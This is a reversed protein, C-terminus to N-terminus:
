TAVDAETIRDARCDTIQPPHNCHKPETMNHSTYFAPIPPCLHLRPRLVRTLWSAAVRVQGALREPVLSTGFHDLAPVGNATVYPMGNDLM